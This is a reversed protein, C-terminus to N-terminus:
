IALAPYYHAAISCDPRSAEPGSVPRYSFKYIVKYISPQRYNYVDPRQYNAQIMAIKDMDTCPELM